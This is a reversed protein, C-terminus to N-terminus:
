KYELTNVINNLQGNPNSRKLGFNEFHYIILYESETITDNSSKKELAVGNVYVKKDSSYLGSDKKIVVEM